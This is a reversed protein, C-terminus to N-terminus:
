LLCYGAPWLAGSDARRRSEDARQRGCQGGRHYDRRLKEAADEVEKSIDVMCLKAGYKVYAEAIGQGLGAAAGTILATKGELKAM